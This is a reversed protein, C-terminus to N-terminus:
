SDTLGWAITSSGIQIGQFSRTRSPWSSTAPIGSYRCSANKEYNDEECPPMFHDQLQTSMGCLDEQIEAYCIVLGGFAPSGQLNFRAQDIESIHCRGPLAEAARSLPGYGGTTSPKM